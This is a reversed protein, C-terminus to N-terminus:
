LTFPYVVPEGGKVREPMIKLPRANHVFWCLSAEYLRMFLGQRFAHGTTFDMSLNVKETRDMINIFRGSLSSFFTTLRKRPSEWLCFPL